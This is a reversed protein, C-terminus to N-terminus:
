LNWDDLLLPDRDVLLLSDREESLLCLFEPDVTLDGGALLLIDCASQLKGGFLLLLVDWRVHLDVDGDGRCSWCPASSTWSYPLSWRRCSSRGPIPPSSTKHSILITHGNFMIMIVPSLFTNLTQMCNKMIHSFITPLKIKSVASCQREWILAQFRFQIASFFVQQLTTM